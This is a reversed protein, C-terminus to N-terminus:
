RNTRSARRLTREAERVGEAPLAVPLDVLAAALTKATCIRIPPLGSGDDYTGVHKNPAPAVCIIRTVQSPELRLAAAVNAANRSVQALPDGHFPKHDKGSVLLGNVVQVFGMRTKVELVAVGGNHLLVTQDIDEKSYTSLGLGSLVTAVEPISRLADVVATESKAGVTAQGTTKSLAKAKGHFFYWGVVTPATAVALINWGLARQKNQLAIERAHIAENGLVRPGTSTM